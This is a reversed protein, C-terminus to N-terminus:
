ERIAHYHLVFKPVTDKNLRSTIQAVLKLIGTHVLLKKGLTAPVGHGCIDVSVVGIPRKKANDVVPFGAVLALDDPMLELKNKSVGKKGNEVFPAGELFVKGSVGEGPAFKNGLEFKSYNEKPCCAVFRLQGPFTSSDDIQSSPLTLNTRVVLNDKGLVSAVEQRIEGLLEEIDNRLGDDSDDWIPVLRSWSVVESRDRFGKAFAVFDSVSKLYSERRLGKRLGCVQKVLHIVEDDKLANCNQIQGFPGSDLSVKGIMVGYLQTTESRGKAVGAEYVLWPRMVSRQTLLCVVASSLELCRILEQYWDKGFPISTVKSSDSSCFCQLGVPGVSQLLSKFQIALECDRVDHSIFVMAASSVQPGCSRLTRKAM